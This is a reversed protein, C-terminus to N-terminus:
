VEFDLDAGQDVLQDALPSMHVARALVPVVFYGNTQSHQGQAPNDGFLRISLQDNGFVVPRNHGTVGVRDSMQDSLAQRHPWTKTTNTDSLHVTHIRDLQDTATFFNIQGTELSRM